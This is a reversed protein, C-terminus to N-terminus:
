ASLQLIAREYERMLIADEVLNPLLYYLLENLYLGSFLHYGHLEVPAAVAEFSQLNKLEGRGIWSLEYLCFPLIPKNKKGQKGRVSRVILDIRGDTDTVFAAIVSSEKFPRSHLLFGRSM